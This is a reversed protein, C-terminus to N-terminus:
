VDEGREVKELLGKLFGLTRIIAKLIRKQDITM